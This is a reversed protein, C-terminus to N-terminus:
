EQKGFAASILEVKLAQVPDPLEYSAIELQVLVGRPWAEIERRVAFPRDASKSEGRVALVVEALDYGGNFLILALPETGLLPVGGGAPEWRFYLDVAREVTGFDGPPHLAAPHPTLGAAPPGGDYAQLALGCNRCFRAVDPNAASCRPCDMPM